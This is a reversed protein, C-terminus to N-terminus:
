PLTPQVLHRVSSRRRRGDVGPPHRDPPPRNRTRGPRGPTPPAQLHRATTVASRSWCSFLVALRASKGQDRTPWCRPALPTIRDAAFFVYSSLKKIAEPLRGFLALGWISPLSSTAPEIGARPEASRM